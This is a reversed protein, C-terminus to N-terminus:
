GNEVTGMGIMWDKGDEGDNMVMGKERTENVEVQSYGTYLRKEGMRVEEEDEQYNVEKHNSISPLRVNKMEDPVKVEDNHWL